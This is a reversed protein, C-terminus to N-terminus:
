GHPSGELVPCPSVHRLWPCFLLGATAGLARLGLPVELLSRWGRNQGPTAGRGTLFRKRIRTERKDEEQTGPRGWPHPGAGEPLQSSALGLYCEWGDPSSSAKTERGGRRIGAQSSGEEFGQSGPQAGYQTKNKEAREGGGPKQSALEQKGALRRARLVLWRRDPSRRTKGKSVSGQAALPRPPDPKLLGRLKGVGREEEDQSGRHYPALLKRGLGGQTPCLVEWPKRRGAHFM